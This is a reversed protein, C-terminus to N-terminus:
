GGSGWGELIERALAPPLGDPDPLRDPEGLGDAEGLEDADALGDPEALTATWRDEASLEDLLVTALADQEEPPLKGAAEFAKRLLATM